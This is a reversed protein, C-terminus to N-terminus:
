NSEKSEPDHVKHENFKRDEKHKEDTDFMSPHLTLWDIKPVDVKAKSDGDFPMIRIDIRKSANKM